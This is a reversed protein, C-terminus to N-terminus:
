AKALKPNALVRLSRPQVEVSIDCEGLVAGDVMVPSPQQCHFRASRVQHHLIREDEPVGASFQLVTNILDIKSMEPFFFIDLLGDSFSVDEGLKWRAGTYPMNTILVTHADVEVQREGNDLDAEIHNLPHELLIRMFEGIKALEGHQIEDTSPFLASTLGISAIEVLTHAADSCRVLGTDIQLIDSLRLSRVAAELDNLPIGLALAQNNQTGTPIIGLSTSTNVLGAAVRSVTGDGGCALVLEFGRRAADSAIFALDDEAQVIHVEPIMQQHQLCTLLTTLQRPSDEERGSQLNFIVKVKLATKAAQM